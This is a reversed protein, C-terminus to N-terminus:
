PSLGQSRAYTMWREVASKRPYYAFYNLSVPKLTVAIRDNIVRNQDEDTLTFTVATAPLNFLLAAGDETTKQLRPNPSTKSEIPVFLWQATEPTAGPTLRMGAAKRGGCDHVQLVMVGKAPDVPYSIWAAWTGAIFRVEAPTSLLIDTQPTLDSVLPNQSTFHIVGPYRANEPIGGDGPVGADVDIVTVDGTFGGAPLVNFPVDITRQAHDYVVADPPVFPPNCTTNPNCAKASVTGVANPDTSNSFSRVAARYHANTNPTWDRGQDICGWKEYCLKDFGCLQGGTCDSDQNCPLAPTGADPSVCLSNVCWSGTPCDVTSACSPQRCVNAECVLPLGVSAAATDCDEQKTCQKADLDSGYVLSCGGLM